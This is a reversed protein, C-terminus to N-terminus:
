IPKLINKFLEGISTSCKFSELDLKQKKQLIKKSKKDLIIADEKTLCELSPMPLEDLIDETIGLMEMLEEFTIIKIDVGEDIANKVYKLKSCYKDSGDENKMDYTVFVDVRSAKKAYIAGKNCLLQVINLMQKYHTEEYNISISVRLSELTQEEIVNPYVNDLFQVFTKMEKSYKKMTNSSDPVLMREEKIMRSIELSEVTYNTNVDHCTPCINLIEEVNLELRRQLEKLIFMTNIADCEADHERKIYDVGLEILINTVSKDNQHSTYEKYLLKLDYFQFDICPLNYRLCEDNLAKADGNISHGFVYNAENFLKVIEYFYSNFTPCSEYERITRTLIKRLVRYDWESRLINPNIIFNGQKLIEFKENTMVYGFECIKSVGGQSTAFELDIFLYKM